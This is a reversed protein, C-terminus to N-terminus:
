IRHIRVYYIMIDDQEFCQLLKKKLKNFFYLNNKTSKCIVWYVINEDKIQKGTKPDKWGGILPSNDITCGGFKNYIEDYTKSYKIGEIKKRNKSNGTNYYLPLLIEVKLEIM